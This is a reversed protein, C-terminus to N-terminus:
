PVPTVAHGRASVIVAHCALIQLRVGVYRSPGLQLGHRKGFALSSCLLALPSICLPPHSSPTLAAVLEDGSFIVDM